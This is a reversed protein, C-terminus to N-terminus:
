GRGSVSRVVVVEPDDAHELLLRQVRDQWMAGFGALAEADGPDALARMMLERM